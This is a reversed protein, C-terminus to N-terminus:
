AFLARRRASGLCGPKLRWIEPSNRRTAGQAGLEYLDMGQHDGEVAVRQRTARDLLWNLVNLLLVFVASDEFRM